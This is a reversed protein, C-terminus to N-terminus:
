DILKKISLKNIRYTQMIKESVYIKSKLCPIYHKDHMYAHGVISPMTVQNCLTKKSCRKKKLEVETNSLMRM